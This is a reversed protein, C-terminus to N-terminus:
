APGYRVTFAAGAAPAQGLGLLGSGALVVSDRHVFSSEGRDPVVWTGNASQDTLVFRGNRYEVRAHLRSICDDKVVLDTEDARGVTLTPHGEGLELRRAAAQLILRGGGRQPANAWPRHRILTVEEAQWVLEYVDILDRKGKVEARDIQRMASRWPGAMREVTEGTTLVQGAKAQNAMRSAMNVADGFVDFDEILASGFHLGVRIALQRGDVVPEGTIAEQMAAAGAVAADATAFTAMVEDGITKVVTGGERQTLESMIAVCRAVIARARVDGLTDYLETSGSVDAFLIAMKAERQM